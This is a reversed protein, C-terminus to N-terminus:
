RDFTMPGSVRAIERVFASRSEAWFVISDVAVLKVMQDCPKEEVGGFLM